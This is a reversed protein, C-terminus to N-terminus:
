ICCRFADVTWTSKFFKRAKDPSSHFEVDANSHCGWIEPLGSTQLVSVVTVAQQTTLPRLQVNFWPCYHPFVSIRINM